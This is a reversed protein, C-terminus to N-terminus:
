FRWGTYLLASNVDYDISMGLVEVEMTLMSYELGIHINDNIQYEGGLGFYFNNGSTSLSFVEGPFASDTEELDLNWFALGARANVAFAQHLPLIGMLGVLFADASVDQTIRDGWDDIHSWQPEGYKVWSLEAAINDTFQFGGRLGLLIDSESRGKVGQFSAQQTASGILLEAYPAAHVHPLAMVSAAILLVKKM